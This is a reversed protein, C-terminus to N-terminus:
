TTCKWLKMNIVYFKDNKIMDSVAESYHGKSWGMEATAFNTACYLDCSKCLVSNSGKQICKMKRNNNGDDKAFNILQLVM